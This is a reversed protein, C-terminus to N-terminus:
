HLVTLSIGLGVIFNVQPQIKLNRIIVNANLNVNGTNIIVDTNLDPILGCSWNGPNNWENSISGTWTSSFILKFTDSFKGDVVCRYRNGYWSTPANLLKLVATTADAYIANNVINIYGGGTDVQWQYISGLIGSLNSVISSNSSACITAKIPENIRNRFIQFGYRGTLGIDPKGDNDFDASSLKTEFVSVSGFRDSTVFNISNSNSTNSCIYFNSYTYEDSIYDVLSDGNINNLEGTFSISPTLFFDLRPGFSLNGLSSINKFISYNADRMSAEYTVIIDLKNDNDVDAIFLKSIPSLVTSDVRPAFNIASDSSTNKFISIFLPNFNLNIRGSVVVDNKGDGDLDGTAISASNLYTSYQLVPAFSIIGNISTNRLVGFSGAFNGTIFLDPRGDGDLDEIKIELPNLVASFVLPNAFAINGPSSNNKLIGIKGDKTIYAVDPKGDNDIDGITPSIGTVLNKRTTFSIDGNSLTRNRFYCLSDGQGVYRVTGVIDNKGDGDLDGATIRWPYIANGYIQDTLILAQYFSNSTIAHEAPFTVNFPSSSFANLRNSLNIVSIPDYSSGFPVVCVIQTISASIIVAKMKGFYVINNASVPNFFNGTITVQTGPKGYKPIFSNIVPGLPFIFKFGSIAAIGRSTTVTIKGSFGGAVKATILNPSNVTFSSAPVGEFAVETVNIFATGYINVDSLATASSPSFSTIKPPQSNEPFDQYITLTDSDSNTDVILSITDRARKFDHIYSFNYSNAVLVGNLFWKNQYNPNSYNMLNVNYSPTFNTTDVNFNAKPFTPNGGSTTLMLFEGKGCAWATDNNLVFLRNMGYNLYQSNPNKKCVEWTIGGNITKLVNYTFKTALLGFKENLFFIDAALIPSIMQNNMTQWTFGGDATKYATYTDDKTIFGITENTFSINNFNLGSNDPLVNTMEAWIGSQKKYIKNGAIAYGIQASPISLKSFMSNAAPPIQLVEVWNQGRNTTEVIYKENIAIGNNGTPFKMDFMSNGFDANPNLQRHFVLKWTIGQNSSFLISPEAGYDGYVLLSDQSFAYVGMTNFGFTLNVAYGNYNTNSLTIARKIYSHGSDQTYGVSDAFVVFGKAPTLFYMGNISGNPNSRNYKERFFGLANSASNITSVSVINSVAPFPVDSCKVVCKYDKDTQQSTVFTPQNAGPIDTFTNLGLSSSQWQYILGQSNYNGSLVLSFENDPFVNTPGTATGINPIGSCIPSYNITLTPCLNIDTYTSGAFTYISLGGRLVGLMIGKGYNINNRISYLGSIDLPMLFTTPLTGFAWSGIWTEQLSNISAFLGTGTSDADFDNYTIKNSIVASSGNSTSIASLSLVASNITSNAPISSLDFKVFGKDCNLCLNTLDGNIITGAPNVTGSLVSNVVITSSQSIAEPKLFFISVYLVLLTFVSQNNFHELIKM